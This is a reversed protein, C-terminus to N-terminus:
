AAKRLPKLERPKVLADFRLGLRPLAALAPQVEPRAIWDPDALDQL